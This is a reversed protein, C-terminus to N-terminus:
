KIKDLLHNISKSHQPKKHMPVPIAQLPGATLIKNTTELELRSSDGGFERRTPPCLANQLEQVQEKLGNIEQVLKEKEESSQQTKKQYYASMKNLEAEFEGRMSQIIDEYGKILRAREEGTEKEKEKSPTVKQSDETSVLSSLTEIEEDKDLLEKKHTAKLEEIIQQYHKHIDQREQDFDGQVQKLHQNNEKRTKIVLQKASKLDDEMKKKQDLLQNILQQDGKTTQNFDLDELSGENVYNSTAEVAHLHYNERTSKFNSHGPSDMMSVSYGAGIEQENSLPNNFVQTTGKASLPAFEPEDELNRRYQKKDRTNVASLINEKNADTFQKEPNAQFIRNQSSTRRHHTPVINTDHSTLTRNTKPQKRFQSIDEWQNQSQDKGFEFQQM